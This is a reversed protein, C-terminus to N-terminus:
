SHHACGCLGQATCPAASRALTNWLRPIEAPALQQSTWPTDFLSMFRNFFAPDYLAFRSEIGARPAGRHLEVPPQQYFFSFAAIVLEFLQRSPVSSVGERWSSFALLPESAEGIVIGLEAIIFHDEYRHRHEYLPTMTRRDFFTDQLLQQEDGESSNPPFHHVLYTALSHQEVEELAILRLLFAGPVGQLWFYWAPNEDWIQSFGALAVQKRIDEHQLLHLLANEVVRRQDETRDRM